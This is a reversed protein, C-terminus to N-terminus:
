KAAAALSATAKIPSQCCTAKTTSRVLCVTQVTQYDRCKVCPKLKHAVAAPLLPYQSSSICSGQALQFHHRLQLPQKRHASLIPSATWHPRMCSVAHRTLISAPADNVQMNSVLLCMSMNQLPRCAKCSFMVECPQPTTLGAIWCNSTCHALVCACRFRASTCISM